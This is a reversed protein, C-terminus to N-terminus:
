QVYEPSTSPPSPNGVLVLSVHKWNWFLCLFALSQKNSLLVFSFGLIYVSNVIYLVLACMLFVELRQTEILIGREHISIGTEPVVASLAM